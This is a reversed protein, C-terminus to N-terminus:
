SKRMKGIAYELWEGRSMVAPNKGEPGTRQGATDPTAAISRQQQTPQSQQPQQQATQQVGLLEKLIQSQKIKGMVDNARQALIKALQEPDLPTDERLYAAIVQSMDPKQGYLEGEFDLVKKVPHYDPKSEILQQVTEALSRLKAQRAANREQEELKAKISELEREIKSPDNQQPKSVIIDYLKDMDIHLAKLAQTPDAKWTEMQKTLQDLQAQYRKAEQQAALARAEAQAISDLMKKQLDEAPAAAPQQSASQSPTVQEATKVVPDAM